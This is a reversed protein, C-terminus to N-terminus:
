KASNGKQSKADDNAPASIADEYRGIIYSRMMTMKVNNGFDVIVENDSVVKEIVGVLGGQTVVKTGKDMKNIMAAHDKFRKQQPRILLLYFLVALVVVMGINMLLADQPAGEVPPTIVQSSTTSSTTPTSPSEQTVDSM